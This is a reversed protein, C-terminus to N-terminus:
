RAPVRPIRGAKGGRSPEGQPEPGDCRSHRVLRLQGMRNPASLEKPLRAGWGMLRDITTEPEAAHQDAGVSEMDSRMKLLDRVDRETPMRDISCVLINDGKCRSLGTQISAEVGRPRGHCVLSVQPYLTTLEEAAEATEDTSGDDIILVDFRPTASALLELLAEVREVLRHQQNFVPLFATVSRNLVASRARLRRIEEPLAAVLRDDAWDCRM